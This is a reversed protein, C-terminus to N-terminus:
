TGSLWNLIGSGGLGGWFGTVMWSLGCINGLLGWFGVVEETPGWFRSWDLGVIWNFGPPTHGHMCVIDCPYSM